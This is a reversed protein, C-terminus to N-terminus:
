LNNIVHIAKKLDTEFSSFIVNHMRYFNQDIIFSASMLNGETTKKWYKLYEKELGEKLGNCSKKFSIDIQQGLSDIKNDLCQFHMNISKRHIDNTKNNIACDNIINKIKEAEKIISKVEDILFNKIFRKNDQWQNFVLPTIIAILVIIVFNVIDALGINHNLTIGPIHKVFVGAVFGICLLFLIIIINIIKRKM